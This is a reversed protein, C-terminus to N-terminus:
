AGFFVGGDRVVSQAIEAILHQRAFVLQIQRAHAVEGLTDVLGPSQERGARGALLASWAQVAAADYILSCSGSMFCRGPRRPNERMSSIITIAMMSTMATMATGFKRLAIIFALSVAAMAVM